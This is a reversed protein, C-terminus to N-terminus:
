KPYHAYHKEMYAMAEEESSVKLWDGSKEKSSKMGLEGVTKEKESTNM